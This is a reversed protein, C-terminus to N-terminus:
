IIVEEETLEKSPSLVEPAKPSLVVTKAVPAETTEVALGLSEPTIVDAM